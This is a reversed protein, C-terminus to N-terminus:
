SQRVPTARARAAKEEAKLLAHYVAFDQQPPQGRAREVM